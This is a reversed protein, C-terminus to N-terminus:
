SETRGFADFSIDTLGMPQGSKPAGKFYARDYTRTFASGHPPTCSITVKVAHADGVTDVSQSPTTGAPGFEAGDGRCLCCFRRTDASDAAQFSLGIEVEEGMMAGQQKGRKRIHDVGRGSPLEEGFSPDSQLDTLIVSNGAADEAKIAVRHSNYIGIM